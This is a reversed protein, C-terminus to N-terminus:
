EFGISGVNTVVAHGFKKTNKGFGPLDFGLNAATYAISHMIPTLLFTPILAFLKTSENFEKDKQNKANIVKGNLYEAIEQLSLEHANWITVPVLDKGGAVDCLVTIGLDKGCSKFFGFV